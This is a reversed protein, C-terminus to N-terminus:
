AASLYQVTGVLRTNTKVNAQTLKTLSKNAEKQFWLDGQTSTSIVSGSIYNTDTNMDSFYGILVVGVYGTSSESSFPLGSLKLTSANSGGTISTVTVDFTCTVLNGSKVYRATKTNLSIVGPVSPLIAPVWDGVLASGSASITGSPDVTIGSGIKVVGLQTTSAIESDLLVPEIANTTPLPTQKLAVGALTTAAPKTYAM